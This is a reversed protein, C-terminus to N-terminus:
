RPEIARSRLGCLPRSESGRALSKGTDGFPGEPRRFTAESMEKLLPVGRVIVVVQDDRPM